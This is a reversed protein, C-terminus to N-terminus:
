GLGVESMCTNASSVSKVPSRMSLKPKKVPESKAKDGKAPRKRNTVKKKDTTVKGKGKTTDEKEKAPIGSVEQAQGAGSPTLIVGDNNKNGM